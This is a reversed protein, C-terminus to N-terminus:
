PMVPAVTKPLITSDNALPGPASALYTSPSLVIQDIQVGDERTQIRLTHTAASTFRVTSTQTLWYAGAQWGWGSLRVASSDAALNVTLGNSTGVGYLPAGSSDIADSFQVYVSDNFKSNGAARMRLWIHYPTTSAATFSFDVSDAPASSPSTTNSWGRDSS